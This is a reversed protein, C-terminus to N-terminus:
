RFTPPMGPLPEEEPPPVEGERIMKSRAIETLGTGYSIGDISCKMFEMENTTLTGTKDSFIYHVQGLQELLNSTRAKAGTETPEHYILLDSEILRALTIKVFEITVYLSIPVM